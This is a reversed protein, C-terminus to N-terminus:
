PQGSPGGAPNRHLAHQWGRADSAKECSQCGERRIMYAALGGIGVLAAGLTLWVSASLFGVVGVALLVPLGMTLFCMGGAAALIGWTSKM